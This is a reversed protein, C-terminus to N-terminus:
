RDEFRPKRKEAFARLGERYDASDFCANILREVEAHDREGPARAAELVSRKIARLTHPANAAITLGIREAAALIDDPEHVEQILGLELARAASLHSATLFLYRASAPGLEQVAREIGSFAYGLGLRAPTIAFKADSSAIRIDINLAIACGGGVCFGRIVAVTPKPSDRLAAFARENADAYRAASEPDKRNQEFESIDAGAAFAREDAGRILIVRVRDDRELEALAGPLAEWTALNLANLKDPRNFILWGLPPEVSTLLLPDTM